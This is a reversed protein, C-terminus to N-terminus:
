HDKVTRTVPDPQALQTPATNRVLDTGVFEAQAADSIWVSVSPHTVALGILAIVLLVPMAFFGIGWGRGIRNDSEGSKDFTGHMSAEM